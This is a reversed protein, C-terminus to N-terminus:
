LSRTKTIKYIGWGWNEKIVLGRGEKQVGARMPATIPAMCGSTIVAAMLTALVLICISQLKMLINYHGPCMIQHFRIIGARPICAIMGHLFHSLPLHCSPLPGHIYSDFVM